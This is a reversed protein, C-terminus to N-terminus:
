GKGGQKPEFTTYVGYGLAGFKFCLPLSTIGYQPKAHNHYYLIALFSGGWGGVGGGRTWPRELDVVAEIM